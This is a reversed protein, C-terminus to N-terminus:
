DEELNTNFIAAQQEPRVPTFYRLNFPGAHVTVWGGPFDNHVRVDKPGVAQSDVKILFPYVPQIPTEM